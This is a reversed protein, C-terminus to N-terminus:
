KLNKFQIEVLSSALRISLRDQLKQRKIFGEFSRGANNASRLKTLTSSCYYKGTTSNIISQSISRIKSDSSHFKLTSKSCTIRCFSATFKLTMFSLVKKTKQKAQSKPWQAVVVRKQINCGQKEFINRNSPHEAQLLANSM